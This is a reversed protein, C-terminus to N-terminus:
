ISRSRGRSSSISELLCMNSLWSNKSWDQNYAGNGLPKSYVYRCSSCMLVQSDFKPNQVQSHHVCIRLCFLKWVQCNYNVEHCIETSTSKQAWIQAEAMWAPRKSGRPPEATDGDSGETQQAAGWRRKSPLLDVLTPRNETYREKESDITSCSLQLAPMDKGSVLKEKVAQIAADHNTIWEDQITQFFIRKPSHELDRSFHLM